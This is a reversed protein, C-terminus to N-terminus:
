KIWVWFNITINNVSCCHKILIRANFLPFYFIGEKGEQRSGQSLFLGRCLFTSTPPFFILCLWVNKLSNLCICRFISNCLQRITHLREFCSYLLISLYSRIELHGECHRKKKQKFLTVYCDKRSLFVKLIVASCPQARVTGPPVQCRVTKSGCKYCSFGPKKM